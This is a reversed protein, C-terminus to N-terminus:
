PMNWLRHTAPVLGYNAFFARAAVNFDWVDLTMVTVGDSAAYDRAATMMLRAVGQRRLSPDVAIHHVHLYAHAHHFPSDARRVIEATLYGASVGEAEAVFAFYGPQALINQM